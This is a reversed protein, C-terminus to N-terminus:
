WCGTASTTCWGEQYIVQIHRRLERKRRATLGAWPQGDIEVSGRDPALLGLM